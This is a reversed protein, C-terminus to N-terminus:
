THFLVFLLAPLGIMVAMAIWLILRARDGQARLRPDEPPTPTPPPTADM